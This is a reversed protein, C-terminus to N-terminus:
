FPLVDDYCKVLHSRWLSLSWLSWGLEHLPCCSNTSSVSKHKSGTCIQQIKPAKAKVRMIEMTGECCESCLPASSSASIGCSWTTGPSHKGQVETHIDSRWCSAGNRSGERGELGVGGEQGSVPVGGGGKPKAAPCPSNQRLKWCQKNMIYHIKNTIRSEM